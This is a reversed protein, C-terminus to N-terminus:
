YVRFFIFLYIQITMKKVEPKDQIEKNIGWECTKINNSYAYTGGKM